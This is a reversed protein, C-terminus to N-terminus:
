APPLGGRARGRAAAIRLIELVHQMDAPLPSEVTLLKGTRPHPLTLRRAHLPTRRLHADRQGRPDHIRWGKRHAYLRDVLMPHGIAEFHARIQHTRGTELVVEVRAARVFTELIRYQTRAPKGSDQDVRAKGGHGPPALPLDILGEAPSPVGTVIAEYIKEIGSEPDAFRAAMEARAESGRVLAIVGTTDKDLRHVLGFGALVDERLVDILTEQPQSGAGSHVPLGAPKAVVLLDEDRYLEEVTTPIRGVNRLAARKKEIEPLVKSWVPLELYDGAALMTGPKAVVSNVRVLGTKVVHVLQRRSYLPFCHALFRDLRQGDAAVPVKASRRDKDRLDSM